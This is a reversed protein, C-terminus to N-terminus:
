QMWMSGFTGHSSAMEDIVKLPHGYQCHFGAGLGQWLVDEQGKLVPLWDEAKMWTECWSPLLSTSHRPLIKAGPNVGKAAKSIYSSPGANNRLDQASKLFHGPVLLPFGGAKLASRFDAVEQPDTKVRRNWGPSSTSRKMRDSSLLPAVVSRHIHSTNRVMLSSSHSGNNARSSNSSSAAHLFRPQSAARCICAAMIRDQDRNAAEATAALKALKQCHSAHGPVLYAPSKAPVPM